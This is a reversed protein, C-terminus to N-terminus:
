CRQICTTSFSCNWGSANPATSSFVGGPKLPIWPLGFIGELCEDLLNKLSRNALPKTLLRNMVQQGRLQNQTRRREALLTGEQRQLRWALPTVLVLLVATDLFAEALPPLSSVLPFVLTMSMEGVAITKLIRLPALRHQLLMSALNASLIFIAALLVTLGMIDTDLTLGPAALPTFGEAPIEMGGMATYHMASISLGLVVAELPPRIPERLRPWSIRGHGILLALLAACFAVGLSLAVWLPDYAIPPAVLLAAMGTYHMASIGVSLLLSQLLLEPIGPRTAHLFAFAIQSSLIAVLFSAVTLWLHYHVPISERCALMGLFHMAWIGTGFVCGSLHRKVRSSSHGLVEHMGLAAHSAVITVLISLAVLNVDYHMTAM